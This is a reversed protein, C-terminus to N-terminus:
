LPPSSDQTELMGYRECGQRDKLHILRRHFTGPGLALYQGPLEEGSALGLSRIALLDSVSHIKVNDDVDKLDADRGDADMFFASSGLEAAYRNAIRHIVGRDGNLVGSIYTVVGRNDCGRAKLPFFSSYDYRIFLRERPKRAALIGIRGTELGGSFSSLVYSHDTGASSIRVTSDQAPDLGLAVDTLLLGGSPSPRGLDWSRLAQEIRCGLHLTVCTWHFADEPYSEIRRTGEDRMVLHSGQVFHLDLELTVAEGPSGEPATAARAVAPVSMRLARVEGSTDRELQFGRPIVTSPDRKRFPVGYSVITDGALVAMDNFGLGIVVGHDDDAWPFSDGLGQSAHNGGGFALTTGDKSIGTGVFNEYSGDLHAFGLKSYPKIGDARSDPLLLAALLLALVM